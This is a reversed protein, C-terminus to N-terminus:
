KKEKRQKKLLKAMELCSRRSVIVSLGNYKVEKRIIVANEETHRPHADLVHFHAPDVGVGLVVDHLKARRLMTEQAGTMAVAENDLIVVTMNTDAAVADLLPTIGSHLFTSDGIVAVVHEFGAEAAGKAIGISAGMCVCTEIASYPPLAGLTYCGIDSTVTAEDFDSVAQRISAFSDGHPCGACLQPPRVPVEFGEIEVRERPALGLATRVVDPDLEGEMPVHGSEKGEIEIM